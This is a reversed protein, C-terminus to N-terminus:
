DAAAAIATEFDGVTLEKEEVGAAIAVHVVDSLSVFGADRHNAFRLSFPQKTRHFAAIGIEEKYDRGHREHDRVRSGAAELCGSVFFFGPGAKEVFPFHQDVLPALHAFLDEDHGAIQVVAKGDFHGVVDPFEAASRVVAHVVNGLQVFAVSWGGTLELEAWAFAVDAPAAVDQWVDWAQVSEVRVVADHLDVIDEVLRLFQAVFAPDGIRVRLDDELIEVPLGSFEGVGFCDRQIPLPAGQKKVAQSM